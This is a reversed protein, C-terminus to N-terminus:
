LGLQAKYDSFSQLNSDKDSLILNDIGWDIMLEPDDYAIGTDYQKNYTRTCKYFLYSDELALFGHGFGEPVFFMNQSEGSLVVKEHKGFTESDPRLDVAVDLVKGRIVKVLKGQSFPELQFHIGRLIGSKSFSLNDQVFTFNLGHEDFQDKNYSEMFWGRNDSFINPILEILGEITTERITM